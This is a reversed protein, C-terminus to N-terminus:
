PFKIDGQKEVYIWEKKNILQTDAPTIKIWYKLFPEVIVVRKGGYGFAGIDYMQEKIVKNEEQHEYLTSITVWVGFDFMLFLFIQGIYTLGSILITLVLIFWNVKDSNSKLISGFLTFLVALPIGKIVVNYFLHRDKYDSFEYPFVQFITLSLISILLFVLATWFLIKKVIRV